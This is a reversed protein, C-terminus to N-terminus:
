SNQNMQKLLQLLKARDPATPSQELYQELDHRAEIWRGLQYYLLGRDRQEALDDPQILLIRESTALCKQLDGTSLYIQKLNTLMRILFQAPTIPAFFAPQFDVPRQYLQALRDRCDQEFLTDGAHFPDVYFELDTQQPRILFHGPFNIGVMPLGIRQCIELYVLSLTIPIGTRRELVDNLFSNRPDYYDQTNGVFGLETFLYHNICQIWKLPYQAEPLRQRVQFAIQDLQDLYVQLDLSPYEEQAIYLAAEALNFTEQRVLQYLQQRPLPFDM